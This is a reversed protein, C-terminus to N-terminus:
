IDIKKRREGGNERLERGPFKPNQIIKLERTEPKLDRWWGGTVRTV